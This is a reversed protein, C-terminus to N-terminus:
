DPKEAGLTQQWKWATRAMDELNYEPKWGLETSVKTTDAWIQEVDGPRRDAYSHPLKVGTSQEFADVVEKVSHGNGTGVNFVETNFDHASAFDLAIVHARALDVVHIFDRICTGDPTNYDRGFIKLEDRWGAATQTIFPMLNGPIGRPLEGIRASEHAGVPNFYRLLVSKIGPTLQSFEEIMLEAWLKSNGYPSISRTTPTSETVPVSDPEGYVTCSSSFVFYSIKHRQIMEMINILGTINNQYYTVPMTLSEPVSKKAAFHIIGDIGPESEFVSNLEKLNIVDAEYFPISKGCLSELTDLVNAQSNSLNDLIVMEHGAQHLETVTHSGIYGLGGTVLIKM